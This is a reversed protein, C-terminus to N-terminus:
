PYNASTSPRKPAQSRACRRRMEPPTAQSSRSRTAPSTPLGSTVPAIPWLGTPYSIGAITQVPAVNGSAGAAFVLVGAYEDAVLLRGQSDFAIAFPKQLGTNSGSITVIPAVNGNANEAFAVISEGDVNAVFLQRDCNM